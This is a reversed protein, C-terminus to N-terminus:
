DSGNECAAPGAADVAGAVAGHGQGSVAEGAGQRGRGLIGYEFKVLVRRVFANRSPRGAGVFDLGDGGEVFARVQGLSELRETAM